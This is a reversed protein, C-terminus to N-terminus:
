INKVDYPIGLMDKISRDLEVLLKQTAGYKLISTVMRHDISIESLFADIPEDPRFDTYPADEEPIIARLVAKNAAFYTIKDKFNIKQLVCSKYLM